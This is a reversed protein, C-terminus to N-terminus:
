SLQRRRSGSVQTSLGARKAAAMGAHAAEASRLTRTRSKSYKQVGGFHDAVLQSKVVILAKSDSTDSTARENAMATLRKQMASAFGQRFSSGARRSTDRSEQKYAKLGREMVEVLYDQMLAALKTDQEFGKFKIMNFYGSREQIVLCDMYKAVGVALVGYWSPMARYQGGAYDTGFNYQSKDAELDKLTFGHEDIMARVRKAAIEAEHPSSTDQSMAFLNRAREILKAKNDM